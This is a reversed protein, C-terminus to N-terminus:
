VQQMNTQTSAAVPTTIVDNSHPHKKPVSVRLFDQPKYHTAWQTRQCRTCQNLTMKRGKEDRKVAVTKLIKCEGPKCKAVRSGM